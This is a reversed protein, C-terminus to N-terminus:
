SRLASFVLSSYMPSVPKARTQAASGSWWDGGCYGSWGLCEKAVEGSLGRGSDLYLAPAAGATPKFVLLMMLHASLRRRRSRSMLRGIRM